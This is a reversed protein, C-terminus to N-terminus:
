IVLRSSCIHNIIDTLESKTVAVNGFYSQRCDRTSILEYLFSSVRLQVDAISRNYYSHLIFSVMLILKSDSPVFYYIWVWQHIVAHLTYVICSLRVSSNHSMRYTHARLTSQVAVSNTLYLYASVFSLCCIVTHPIRYIGCQVSVAAGRLVSTPSIVRPSRGFNVDTTAPVIHCFCNINLM